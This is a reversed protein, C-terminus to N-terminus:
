REGVILASLAGALAQQNRDSAQNRASEEDLVKVAGDLVRKSVNGGTKAALRIATLPKGLEALSTALMHLADVDEAWRANRRAMQDYASLVRVYDKRSFWHRILIRYSGKTPKEAVNVMTNMVELFSDHERRCSHMHLLANMMHINVQVRKSVVKQFVQTAQQYEGALSLAMLVRSYDLESVASREDLAQFLRTCDPASGARSYASLLCSRIRNRDSSPLRESDQEVQKIVELDSAFGINRAITSLSQVDMAVTDDSRFERYLDMRSRPSLGKKEMACLLHAYIKSTRPVKEQKLQYLIWSLRRVDARMAM